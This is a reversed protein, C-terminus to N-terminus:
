LGTLRRSLMEYRFPPCRDLLDQGIRHIGFAAPSVPVTPKFRWLQPGGGTLPGELIALEIIQDRVPNLGTTETDIIAVRHKAFPTTATAAESDPQPDRPEPDQSLHRIRPLGDGIRYPDRVDGENTSHM